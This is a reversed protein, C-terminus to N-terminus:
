SAQYMWYDNFHKFLNVLEAREDDNLDQELDVFLAGVFQPPILALSMMRRIVGRIRLNELDLTPLGLSQVIRYVSQTFHFFCGKQATKGTFELAIGKTLGPELDTMILTPEFSKKLRKAETSLVEFLDIYTIAQRDPLLAYVIPIGFILSDIGFRLSSASGFTKILPSASFTGDMHLRESEFLLNFQIDSSWIHIMLTMFYYANKIGIIARTYILFTSRVHCHLNPRQKAGIAFWTTASAGINTLNPLVALTEGVLLAKRMGDKAIEQLPLHEIEARVRMKERLNRIDFEAPNPLHSHEATKGSYRIFEDDLATHMLVDCTRNAYRWCKITKEKIPSRKQSLLNLRSQVRQHHFKSRVCLLRPHYHRTTSM